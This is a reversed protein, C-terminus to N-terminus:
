TACVGLQAVYIGRRARHIGGLPRHEKLAHWPTNTLANGWALREPFNFVQADIAITAVREWPSTWEITPDEIPMAQLDGRRQVYFGFTAPQNLTTLHEVLAKRLYHKGEMKTQLLVNPGEPKARYKVATTTGFAYPTTSYYATM